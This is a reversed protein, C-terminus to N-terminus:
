RRTSSGASRNAQRRLWWAALDHGKRLVLAWPWIGWQLILATALLAPSAARTAPLDRDHDYALWVERIGVLTYALWFWSSTLVANYIELELRLLDIM